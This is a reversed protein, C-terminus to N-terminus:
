NAASVKLTYCVPSLFICIDHLRSVVLECLTKAVQQTDCAREHVNLLTLLHRLNANPTVRWSGKMCGKDLCVRHIKM